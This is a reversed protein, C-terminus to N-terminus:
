KDGNDDQVPTTTPLTAAAATAAAAASEQAFYGLNSLFHCIYYHYNYNRCVSVCVFVHLSLTQNHIFCNNILKHTIAMNDYHAM